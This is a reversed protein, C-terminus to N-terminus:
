AAPPRSPSGLSPRLTGCVGPTPSYFSVATSYKAPKDNDAAGTLNGALLIKGFALTFGKKKGGLKGDSTVINRSFDAPFILIKFFHFRFFFFFVKRKLSVKFAFRLIITTYIM